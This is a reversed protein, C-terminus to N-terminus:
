TEDREFVYAAGGNAKEPAGAVVTWGSIAVAERGLLDGLDADSAMLKAVEVWAGNGDREFIHIAGAQLAKERDKYAGVALIGGDVALANGFRADPTPSQATLKAVLRWQPPGAAHREFVWVAGTLSGKENDFESGVFVTDGEIAVSDGFTDTEPDPPRTLKATQTWQGDAQREFIYAAGEFDDALPAGAVATNGDLAVSAGVYSSSGADSATLKAVQGWREPGGKNREFLYVSGADALPSDDFPAGVALRDGDLAMAGGFRDNPAADAGLIKRVELWEGSAGRAAWPAALILLFGVRVLLSRSMRPRRARSPRESSSPPIFGSLHAPGGSPSQPM